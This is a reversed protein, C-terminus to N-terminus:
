AFTAGGDWVGREILVDRLVDPRDTVLGAVGLDLLRGMETAVDVTWVHVEVGLLAAARILAEDVVRYRGLHAPLQAMAGRVFRSRRLLPVRISGRLAAAARPGLATALKPGALRRVRALRADSFSAVAVRDVAGSSQIAALLPEVASDSKVDINFAADPLEELVDELRAIPERGGIKARRVQQWTQQEIPGLGDTTRDLMPDHNIVVVGDRTCHVDTELYHYGERVARRFASLSNEM